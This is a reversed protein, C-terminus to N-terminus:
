PGRPAGPHQLLGLRQAEYVAENKTHVALKQYVRKIHTKITETSVGLLKGIEPFNYGKATLNLVEQERDTLAIHEDGGAAAANLPPLPARVRSLVHRAIAPSIPAGGAAMDRIAAVFAEHGTDKLVYGVAGAEISAIVNREDGFVTVVMVLCDPRRAVAHRIVDIGSGDPLGLDVLVMDPAAADVAALAERVTAVAALLAFDPSGRLAAAFTDRLADNDEVLLVTHTM